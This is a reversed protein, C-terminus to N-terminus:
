HPKDYITYKLAKAEFQVTIVSFPNPILKDFLLNQLFTHINDYM